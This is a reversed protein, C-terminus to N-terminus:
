LGYRRGMAQIAEDPSKGGLEKLATTWWENEFKALADEFITLVDVKCEKNVLTLELYRDLGEFMEESMFDPMVNVAIDLIANAAATFLVERRQPSPLPEKTISDLLSPFWLDRIVYSRSAWYDEEEEGECEQDAGEEQELITDMRKRAEEMLDNPVAGGLFDKPSGWWEEEYDTLAELLAKEDEFSDEHSALFGDRFQGLLDVAHEKNIMAISLYDDLNEVFVLQLDEPLNMGIIELIANTTTLFLAEDMDEKPIQGAKLGDVIEELLADKFMLARIPNKKMVAPREDVM